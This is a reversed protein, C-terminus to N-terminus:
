SSYIVPALAQWFAEPIPEEYWVINQKVRNENTMGILVSKVCDYRLAYQIAAAQLSVNFQKCISEIAIVKDVIDKPAEGYLYHGLNKSGKALIGSNFPAAAILSVNNDSCKDTFTHTINNNLLTFCNAVMFCDFQAYNMAQDCIQWENVGLGINSVLGQERLEMMAKFGGNIAQQFYMAHQEKHTLEGIDHMLLMDVHSVGLRQLSDEFSRMVGDYTYNYERDFPSASVFGEADKQEVFHDPHLLRGVKTSVFVQQHPIDGLAVGLRRESLGGGYHPATDFYEIGLESAKCAAASFDEYSVPRYLNGAGACGFGIESMSSGSRNIIRTKM